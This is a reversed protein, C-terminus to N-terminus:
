EADNNLLSREPHSTDLTASMSSINAPADDNACVSQPSAHTVEVAYLPPINSPEDPRIQVVLVLVELVALIEVVLVAEVIVAVAVEVVLVVEWLLVARM